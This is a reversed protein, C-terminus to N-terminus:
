FNEVHFRKAAVRCRKIHMEVELQYSSPGVPVWVAWSRRKADWIAPALEQAPGFREFGCPCAFCEGMPDAAPSFPQRPRVDILVEADLADAMRVITGLNPAGRSGLLTQAVTSQSRGMLVGLGRQSLDLDARLADLMSRVGEVVAEIRSRVM